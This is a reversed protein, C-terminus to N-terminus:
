DGKYVGFGGNLRHKQGGTGPEATRTGLTVAQAAVIRWLSEDHLGVGLSHVESKRGQWVHQQWEAM